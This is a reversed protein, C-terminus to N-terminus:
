RSDKESWSCNKHHNGIGYCEPCSPEDNKTPLELPELADHAQRWADHAGGGPYSSLWDLSRRVAAELRQVKATEANLAMEVDQLQKGLHAKDAQLRVNSELLREIEDAARLDDAVTKPQPSRLHAYFAPLSRQPESEEGM